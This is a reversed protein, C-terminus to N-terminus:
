KAGVLSCVFGFYDRARREGYRSRYSKSNTYRGTEVIEYCDGGTHVLTVVFLESTKRAIVGQAALPPLKSIPASRTFISKIFKLM